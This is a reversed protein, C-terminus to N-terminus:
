SVNLIELVLSSAQRLYFPPDQSPRAKKPMWLGWVQGVECCFLLLVGAMLHRIYLDGGLLIGPRM